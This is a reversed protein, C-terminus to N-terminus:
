RGHGVGLDQGTSVPRSLVKRESPWHSPRMEKSWAVGTLSVKAPSNTKSWTAGKDYSLLIIEGNDGVAVLPTGERWALARLTSDDKAAPPRSGRLAAMPVSSPAATSFVTM